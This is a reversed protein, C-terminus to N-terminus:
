LRRVRLPMANDRSFAVSVMYDAWGYKLCMAANVEDRRLEDAELLVHQQLGGRELLVEPRASVRAYWASDPAGARLYTGDALDVIWLRTARFEGADDVTTLTVVEGSESALFQLGALVAITAAALAAIRLVLKM